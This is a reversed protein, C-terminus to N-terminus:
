KFQDSFVAIQGCHERKHGYFQYVAYDELDYAEGYWPLVDTQHWVESSIRSAASRVKEHAAKYEDLVEEMTMNKRANVQADNFGMHDGLFTDLQPTPGPKLLNNLVDVLILEYSSLHAVLDKVSWYGCAGSRYVEAAPFAEITSIFTKNGYMLIDEPHMKGEKGPQTGAPM